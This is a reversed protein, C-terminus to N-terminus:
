IRSNHPIKTQEACIITYGKEKLNTIANLIDSEYKWTVTEEAGL